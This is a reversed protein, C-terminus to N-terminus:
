SKGSINHYCTLLDRKINEVNHREHAHKYSNRSFSAMREKDNFLQMIVDAMRWPDNAPVLIGDNGYDLLTEIGGVHTSVIPLGM